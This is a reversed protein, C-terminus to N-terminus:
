NRSSSLAAPWPERSFPDYPNPPSAPQRKQGSEIPAGRGPGGLKRGIKSYRDAPNTRQVADILPRADGAPQDIEGPCVTRQTNGGNAQMITSPGIRRHDVNVRDKRVGACIGGSLGAVIKTEGVVVEGGDLGEARLHHISQSFADLVRGNSAVHM